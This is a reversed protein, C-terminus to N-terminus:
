GKCVEEYVEITRKAVAKWSYVDDVKKKANRVLWESYGIDSLVKNVGWALSEPNKAYVLVGTRDHEVIDALGGVNAAVVPAGAAMGELAVIGFPEYISPVVLADASMTLEALESDRIFGLFKIKDGCGSSAALNELHSKSWGDGAIIFRAGNHRELILPVARILHEVGKQPVLRGVFLVLKGHSGIGYQSRVTEKDSNRRYTSTDIANPIVAIKEPPLRFHHELEGRMSHSCLVVKSAEFTMWWELGDIMHSDPSNLGQARGIETSHVTSVLPKDLFYKSAIGASATLWDHIHVVDFRIKRSLEAIKKEIFHNFIFTWTLFNPHGLEISVRHVKVGDVDQFTPTGPFDLTVVHVEHNEEVLARSLGLCHRAIGGVIRPPFEWTLMCIKM